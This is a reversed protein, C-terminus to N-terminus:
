FFYMISCFKKPPSTNESFSPPNKISFNLPFSTLIFLYPFLSLPSFLFFTFFFLLFLTAFLSLFLPPRILRPQRLRSPVHGQGGSRPLETLTEASSSGGNSPLLSTPSHHSLTPDLLSPGRDLSSSESQGGSPVIPMTSPGVRKDTVELM